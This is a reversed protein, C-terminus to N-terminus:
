KLYKQRQHNIRYYKGGGRGGGGFLASEDPAFDNIDFDPLTMMINKIKALNKLKSNETKSLEIVFKASM